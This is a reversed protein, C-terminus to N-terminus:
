ITSLPRLFLVLLQRHHLLSYQEPLYYYLIRANRSLIHKKKNMGILCSQLKSTVLVLSYLSVNHYLALLMLVAHMDAHAGGIRSALRCHCRWSWPNWIAIVPAGTVRRTRMVIPSGPGCALGGSVALM